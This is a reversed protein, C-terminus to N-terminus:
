TRRPLSSYHPAAALIKAGSIKRGGLNQYSTGGMGVNNDALNSSMNVKLCTFVQRESGRYEYSYTTRFTTHVTWDVFGLGLGTELM